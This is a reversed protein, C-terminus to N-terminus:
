GSPLIASNVEFSNVHASENGDADTAWGEFTLDTGSCAGSIAGELLSGNCRRPDTDTECVLTLFEEPDPNGDSDWDLPVGQSDKFLVATGSSQITDAGQEDNATIRFYFFKGGNADEFCAYEAKEVVPTFGDGIITDGGSTDGTDKGNCAMLLAALAITTFRTM